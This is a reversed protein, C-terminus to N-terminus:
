VKSRKKGVLSGHRELLVEGSVKAAGLVRFM